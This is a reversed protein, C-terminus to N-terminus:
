EDMEEEWEGENEDDAEEPEGMADEYIGGSRGWGDITRAADGFTLGGLHFTIVASSITWLISLANLPAQILGPQPM